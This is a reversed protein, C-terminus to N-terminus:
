GQNVTRCLMVFLNRRLQDTAKYSGCCRCVTSHAGSPGDFSSVIFVQCSLM